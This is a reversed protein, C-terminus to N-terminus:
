TNLFFIHLEDRVEAGPCFTAQDSLWDVGDYKDIVEEDMLATCYFDFPCSSCANWEDNEHCAEKILKMGQIMKEQWTKKFM